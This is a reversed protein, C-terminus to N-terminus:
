AFLDDIETDSNEQYYEYKDEVALEEKAAKEKNREIIKEWYNEDFYIKYDRYLSLNGYELFQSQLKKLLSDLEEYQWSIDDFDLVTTEYEDKIKEEENYLINGIMDRIYDSGAWDSYEKYDYEYIEFLEKIKDANEINDVREILPEIYEIFNDKLYIFSDELKQANFMVMMMKENVNSFNINKLIALFQSDIDCSECYNYLVNLQEIYVKYDTYYMSDINATWINSAIKDFIISQLENDLTFVKERTNFRRFQEIYLVSSIIDKKTSHSQEIYPILFDTLSPNIFDFYQKNLDRDYIKSVIFGDQLIKISSDFANSGVSLNHEKREFNLRNEYSKRM